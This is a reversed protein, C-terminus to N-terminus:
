DPLPTSGTAAEHEATDHRRLAELVEDALQAIEALTHGNCSKFLPIQRLREVKADAM